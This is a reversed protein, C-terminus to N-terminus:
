VGRGHGNQASLPQVAQYEIRLGSWHRQTKPKGTVKSITFWCLYGCTVVSIVLLFSQNRTGWLERYGLSGSTGCGM